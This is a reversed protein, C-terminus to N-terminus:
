IGAEKMRLNIMQKFIADQLEQERIKGIDKSRQIANFEAIGVTPYTPFEVGQAVQKQVQEKIKDFETDPNYMKGDYISPVNVYGKGPLGLDKALETMSLETHPENGGEDFVIPRSLDIPNGASDYAVKKPLMMALNIPNTLKQTPSSLLGTPKGGFLSEESRRRIQPYGIYPEDLLGAM